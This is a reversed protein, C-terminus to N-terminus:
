KKKKTRKNISYGTAALIMGTVSPIINTIVLSIISISMVSDAAVGFLGLLGILSAERIGLGGITVPIEGIITAIPFMFIIVFYSVKVNIAKAVIFIQTYIVIWAVINLLFPIVLQRKKPISLYFDKFSKRTRKKISKPLLKEYLFRVIKQGNNKSILLMFFIMFAIFVVFVFLAM